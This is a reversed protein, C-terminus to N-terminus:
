EEKSEKDTKKKTSKKTRPEVSEVTDAKSEKEPEEKKAPTKSWVEILEVTDVKFTDRMDTVIKFRIVPWEQNFKVIDPLIVSVKDDAFTFVFGDSTGFTMEVIAKAKEENDTIVETVTFTYSLDKGSLPNNFDVKVRGAGTSVVTGTRNGLKVDLGPYPNIQRKHFERASYTEVLKPDRPGAANSSAIEITTEKGIEAASIAEDLPKFLRGSGIIYSIPAYKYKENYIGAEKAVSEITTDYLRDIDTIYSKYDVRVIDGKNFAM